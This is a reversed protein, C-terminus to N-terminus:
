IVYKIDNKLVEVLDDITTEENELEDGFGPTDIM